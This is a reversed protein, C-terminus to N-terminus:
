LIFVEKRHWALNETAPFCTRDGPLLIQKGAFQSLSFSSPSEVIKSTVVVRYDDNLTILGRDFARHLNPSLAIGNTITDDKSISFPKIHCADIMRINRDSRIQMGSIACRYNYIRPIERRFIGGRMFIEEQFEEASLKSKLASIREAYQKQDDRLIQNEVRRIVLSEEAPDFGNKTAPFYRDLLVQQLIERSVPDALLAFLDADMEAYALTERLGNLSRISGSSTVPISMGEKTVLRWFPESKLHYFPLAFNATHPTDVVKAWVDKFELVLEFSIGIRHSLVEGKRVLSIIALLLVPKHPAGGLKHDRKLKLFLRVYHLLRDEAM